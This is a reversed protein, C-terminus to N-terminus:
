EEGSEEETEAGELNFDITAGSGGQSSGQVAPRPIKQEGEEGVVILELSEIPDSGEDLYFVLVTDVVQGPVLVGDYSKLDNLLITIQQNLRNSGNVLLRIKRDYSMPSCNMELGTYNGLDFHLILLDQGEEAQLSFLMNEVSPSDPYSDSIEYYTFDVGFDPIGLAQSISGQSVAAPEDAPAEQPDGVFGGPGDSSVSVNPDLHEGEMLEMEEPTPSSIDVPDEKAPEEPMTLVLGNSGSKDYKLLLGAAYEAVLSLQKNETEEDLDNELGESCGTLLGFSLSAALLLLLVRKKYGTKNLDMRIRERKM